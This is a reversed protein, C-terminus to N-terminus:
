AGNAYEGALRTLKEALHALDMKDREALGIADAAATLRLVADGIDYMAQGRGIECLARHENGGRGTDQTDIM